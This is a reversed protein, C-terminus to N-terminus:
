QIVCVLIEYTYPYIPCVRSKQAPNEKASLEWVHLKEWYVEGKISRGINKGFRYFFL